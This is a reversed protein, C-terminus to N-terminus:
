YKKKDVFNEWEVFAHIAENQLVQIMPLSRQKLDAKIEEEIWQDDFGYNAADYKGAGFIVRELRAWYIAGLCMPCPECSSYIECGTLNFDNLVASAGRIAMVEAHATPDNLETVRNIGRSIIQGDKVIVAGFPGGGKKVNEVALKIAERMYSEGGM